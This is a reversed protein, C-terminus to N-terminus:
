KIIWYLIAVIISGLLIISFYFIYNLYNITSKKSDKDASKKSNKDNIKSEFNIKAKAPGFYKASPM